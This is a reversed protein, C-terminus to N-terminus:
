WPEGLETPQGAQRGGRDSVCHDRLEASALIHRFGYRYAGWPSGIGQERWFSEEAILIDFKHLRADALMRQYGPRQHTGGGIADDSLRAVVSLKLREAHKKCVRVQDDISDASQNETSFRAYIAARIM